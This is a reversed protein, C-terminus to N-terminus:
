KSAWLPTGAHPGTPDDYVVFAGDDNLQAMAGPHPPNGTNTAWIPQEQESGDPQRVIAYTVLNGDTPQMEAYTGRVIRSRLSPAISDHSAWVPQHTREDYTVFNGDAGQMVLKFLGQPSLLFQEATLRQGPLLKDSGPTGVPPHPTPPEPVPSGDSFSKMVAFCQPNNPVKSVDRIERLGNHYEKPLHGNWPCWESHGVYMVWGADRTRTMDLKVDGATTGEGGASSGPGHPENNIKALNPYFGNFSFPNSWKGGDRMTHITIENAYNQNAYLEDFSAQMQENTPNGGLEGHAAAPSSLALRYPKPLKSGLDRGADRVEDATWKNTKFENMMEWRAIAAWRGEAARIIRDHFRYRDSATPTQNRGGYVTCHAQLGRAGLFDLMKKFRDEWTGDILVAADRWPDPNGHSQGEVCLMNRFVKPNVEAMIRDFNPQAEEPWDAWARMWCFWGYAVVMNNQPPATGTQSDFVPWTLAESMYVDEPRWEGDPVWGPKAVNWSPGGPTPHNDAGAIVDVRNGDPFALYDVSCKKGAGAPYSSPFTFGNPSTTDPNPKSLLSVKAAKMEPEQMCWMLFEVDAAPTNSQLLNPHARNVREVVGQLNPVAM